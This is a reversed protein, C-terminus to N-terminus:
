WKAVYPKFTKIEGNIFGAIEQSQKLIIQSLTLEEGRFKEYRNLRELLGRILIRKTPETLLGNHVKVPLKKQIISIVVRDVTQARFIEVVDFVLTPKGNQETHIVGISPNLKAALITKWVRAYLIAYGYNLMSNMLDTAGQHERRIFDIEDDALLERIYAWYAVAGQAEFTMLEKSYDESQSEFQQAKTINKDIKLNVEVYKENLKGLINKHYKHYYKILNLQNKLKGIVIASALAVKKDLPLEVQKSWLSNDVYVPSLVSAYQKGKGDFFDIPIKNTACYMLANSSISIGKGMITVHKLAASPKNVVKNNLKVQIGKHTVGVYSGPTNVVLESGARELKQYEKKKTKILKTISKPSDTKKKKASHVIYTSLLQQILQNKRQNSNSSFFELSKLNDSLIKKSPIHGQNKRILINLREILSCDWEQLINQPLLRGYYNKIGRLTEQSKASIESKIFNISNIRELIDKRKKDSLSLGKTSVIIGLFEVGDCAKEIQPPNLKLSFNTELQRSITGILEDLQEKSEGMVIFDDAYRIYAKCKSCVFQDFPHLYFNALLPSLVAGQPVGQKIENWKLNTSVMGTKVCLEILKLIDNDKLWNDLRKFLREHNITDFFNDIDLKAIYGNKYKPLDGRMRRIAREPGKGPRYGYSVNLFMKEARPEIAMKISQQVIKDKISLLGLKRKEKENKEIEIRLYPEPNWTHTLLEHRLEILNDQLHKEFNSLTLGDIGGASNKLRVVKWANQLAHLTSITQLLSRSM